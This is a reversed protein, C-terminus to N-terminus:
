QLKSIRQWDATVISGLSLESLLGDARFSNFALLGAARTVIEITWNGFKALAEGLNSGNYVSDAFLHRLWPFLNHIAQIVIGAADRDVVGVLLGSTDTM